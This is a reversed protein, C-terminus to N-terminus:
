GVRLDEMYIPEGDPKLVTQRKLFIGQPTGSNVQRPESIQISHDELYYLLTVKRLKSTELASEVVSEQFFGFFRLVQKDLQTFVPEYLQATKHGFGSHVTQSYSLSAPEKVHTPQMPPPKPLAYLPVDKNKTNQIKELHTHSIKKHDVRTPDYDSILGPVKPLSMVNIKLKYSSPLFLSSKKTFM